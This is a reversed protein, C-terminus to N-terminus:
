EYIIIYRKDAEKYENVLAKFEYINTSSEISAPAHVIFDVGTDAYDSRPHLYIKGLYKPLAEARTYIYTREYKNGDTIFIRRLTNDFSDNLVGEMYCVQSNHGLKYWDAERIAMFTTYIEKVPEVLANVYGMIIPMCGLDFILQRILKVFNINYM